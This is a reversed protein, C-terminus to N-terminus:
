NKCVDIWEGGTIREIDGPKVQVVLNETGAPISIYDNGKLSVDIYVELKSKLGFPCLCCAQYGTVERTENRNLMRPSSNFHGIFKCLSIRKLKDTVILINKENVRFALTESQRCDAAELKEVISCELGCQLFDQIVSSIGM